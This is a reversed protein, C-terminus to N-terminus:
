ADPVGVLLTTTRTIARGKDLTTRIDFFCHAIDDGTFCKIIAHDPAESCDMMTSRANCKYRLEGHAM